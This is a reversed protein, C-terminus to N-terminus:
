YSPKISEIATIKKKIYKKYLYVVLNKKKQSFIVIAINSYGAMLEQFVVRHQQGIRALLPALIFHQCALAVLWDSVLLNKKLKLEMGYGHRNKGGIIVNRFVDCIKEVIKKELMVIVYQLGVGGVCSFVVGWEVTYVRVILYSYTFCMKTM